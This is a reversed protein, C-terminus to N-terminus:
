DLSERVVLVRSLHLLDKGLDVVDDYGEATEDLARHTGNSM